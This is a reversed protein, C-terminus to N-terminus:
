TSVLQTVSIILQSHWCKGLWISGLMLMAVCNQRNEMYGEERKLDQDMGLDVGLESRITLSSFTLHQVPHSCEAFPGLLPFQNDYPPHGIHRQLYLRCLLGDSQSRGHQAQGLM